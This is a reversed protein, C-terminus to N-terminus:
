TVSRPRTSDLVRERKNEHEMQGLAALRSCMSGTLTATDLDGGGLNLVRLAVGRDRLGEALALVNQPSQGLRDLSTIV